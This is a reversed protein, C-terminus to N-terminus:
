GVKTSKVSKNGYEDKVTLLLVSGKKQSPIKVTYKGKSGLTGSGLRKGDSKRSIVITKGGPTKGTVKVAGAKVQACAANKMTVTKGSCNKMYIAYVGTGGRILNSGLAKVTSGQLYIGAGGSGLIKNGKLERVVCKKIFIGRDQGNELVNESVGTNNSTADLTIGAGVSGTVTNGSITNGTSASKYVAPGKEAFIGYGPPNEIQNDSISNSKGASISIGNNLYEGDRTLRVKNGSVTCLNALQLHIGEGSGSITNDKVTVGRVIYLGKAIGLSDTPNRQGGVVIGYSKWINGNIMGTPSVLIQNNSVEVNQSAQNEKISTTQGEVLNAHTYRMSAVYIGGSVHELINGSVVSDKYNLCWIGRKKVNSFHNNRITIREYPRNFMMSHSGLGAFVDTFKNEEIIIDECVTGDFPQYRPFIEDMCADIQICEQGRDECPKWYGSFSCGTVHANKVGGLELFHSKLNNLFTVDKVTVNTAHGIRFGVFGGPEEKGECVEYNCDWTGGEITINRYGDYGGESIESNGLRLLIQKKTSVKTITAGVAYLHINSYTCITGSLHYNGPPVIVTYPKEDSAYDSVKLLLTNLSLTLDEGDQIKLTVESVKELDSDPDQPPETGSPSNPDEPTGPEDPANPDTPDTPNESTGPNEPADPNAPDSPTGPDDPADPNAPDTPNEPTGPNEPDDPADPNTPDSPMGPDEPADPNTPDSPTGPDDSDDPNTPDSPTGPDDSDGPAPPDTPGEPVGPDDSTGPEEPSDPDIPTKGEPNDSPTPGDESSEGGSTDGEPKEELGRGSSFVNGASSSGDTFIDGNGSEASIDSFPEESVEGIEAIEELPVAKLQEETYGEMWDFDSATEPIDEIDGSFSNSEMGPLGEGLFIEEEPFVDEEPFAEEKLFVDEEPFDKEGSVYASLESGASERGMYASVDLSGALLGALVVSGIRLIRRNHFTKRM